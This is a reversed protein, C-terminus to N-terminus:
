QQEEKNNLNDLSYLPTQQSTLWDSVIDSDEERADWFEWFEWFKDKIVARSKNRLREDGALVMYAFDRWDLHDKIFEGIAEEYKGIM